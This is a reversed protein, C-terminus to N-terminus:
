SPSVMPSPVPSAFIADKEVPRAGEAVLRLCSGIVELPSVARVANVLQEPTYPKLIVRSGAVPRPRLASFGTAYIVAIQACVDRCREALDWGNILGPLRIDTFLIDARRQLCRELAEQGTAAEIVEFGADLLAASALERILCDDEVVLIKLAM